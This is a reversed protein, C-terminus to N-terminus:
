FLASLPKPLDEGTATCPECFNNFPTPSHSCLQCASLKNRAQELSQVQGQLEQIRAEILRQQEQLAHNVRTLMEGRPLGAQRTALLDRIADLSLGLDQLDRIMRLRNLDTPRYYRFGGQSRRAPELLGLEEYYRLTRLNTDALRAFDGIKLLEPLLAEGRTHEAQPGPGSPRGSAQHADPRPTPRRDPPQPSPEAPPM